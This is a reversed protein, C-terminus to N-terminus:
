NVRKFGTVTALLLAMKGFLLALGGIVSMIHFGIPIIIVGLVAMGFIMAPFMRRRQRRRRAENADLLFVIHVNSITLCKLWHM